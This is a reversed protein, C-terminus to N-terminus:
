PLVGVYLAYSLALAAGIAVLGVALDFLDARSKREHELPWGATDALRGRRALCRLRSNEIETEIDM